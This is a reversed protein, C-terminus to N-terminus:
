KSLKKPKEPKEPKPKIAEARAARQDLQKGTVSRTKGRKTDFISLENADKPIDKSTKFTKLKKVIESYTGHAVIKPSKGSQSAVLLAKM